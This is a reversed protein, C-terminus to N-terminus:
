SFIDQICGEQRKKFDEYKIFYLQEPPFLRQFREIQVAYLGRDLYSFVRHQRGGAPNQIEYNIAESFPRQEKGRDFEMNWHSFARRVPNRLVAILKIDPNYAKIREAAAEWYLYIPTTEGFTVAKSKREFRKEYSSYDPKPTDFNEDRDFFHLEKDLGMGIEP